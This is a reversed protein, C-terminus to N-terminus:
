RTAVVVAEKFHQTTGDMDFIEGYVVYMGVAVRSGGENTGDWSVAGEQEVLRSKVLHRIHQGSGDFIHINLTYGPKDFQYVISTIDDRGDGDPSFLPPVISLKGKAGSTEALM